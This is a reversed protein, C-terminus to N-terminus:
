RHGEAAAKVPALAAPPAGGLEAALRQRDIKGNGNRPLPTHAIDIRSPQMYAPLSRALAQRLQTRADGSGLSPLVVLAVVQGRQEDPLGFAAAEAALGTAYAADEVEVPSIRYGMSKIMEDKRGIFYLYGAEDCRVTDGSFVAMEPLVFGAERGPLPKFREATRAPDGWYGLAVTSGRHVLEGPEGPACRSGDPRLVLVEQNPIARGISDPRREVEEPPLYTSRFAETLGYMLYPRATPVHERLRLLVERPMKGGTSAFYRLHQGISAPWSLEALQIYLPPVATIGTIRESVLTRLVEAPTLYELLVACAGVAFATTLQSFGADFSLPLAALLRDSCQNQLYSAVSEAGTVLNRHSVMVGKPKGTSGSTYLIAALDNDTPAERRAPAAGCFDAWRTCGEPAAGASVVVVEQVSPCQPLVGQLALWREGSTVLLRVGCNQLIHAVQAPKLVPNIPVFVAGARSSGFAAIVAEFGKSLFVGVRQGPAIGRALVGGAFRGVAAHLAAYGLEEGGHSLAAASPNRATSHDLLHHLLRTAAM